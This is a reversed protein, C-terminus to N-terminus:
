GPAPSRRPPPASAAAAASSSSRGARARRRDDRGCGITKELVAALAERTSPKVLYDSAGASLLDRFLAVDNVTGLVVLKLDAGGVARAASVEAIPATSEGLDVLLIRPAVGSRIRRLAADLTDTSRSSTMWNCSASSARSAISRRSSRCSPSSARAIPSSRQARRAIIENSTSWSRSRWGASRRRDGGGGGGGGGRRHPSRRPPRRRRRSSGTTSTASHRRRRRAHRRGARAHARQRPRGPEGGDPRSQDGRRLGLQEYARQHIRCSPPSSWNPCPPLTVTYRGIGLDRPQGARGRGAAARRRHRLRLLASSIAAARQEALRRAAPRPSRSAIPRASAAPRWWGDLHRREGPALRASGPAFAIDVRTEAGDVRLNNPAESKTYDTACAALALMLPLAIPYLRNKM